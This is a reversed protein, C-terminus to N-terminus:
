PAEPTTFVRNVAAFAADIQATETIADGEIAAAVEALKDFSAQTLSNLGLGLALVRANPFTEFALPANGVQWLKDEGTALAAAYAGSIYAQGKDNTPLAFGDIVIGGQECAWRAAMAYAALDTKTPPGPEPLPSRVVGEVELEEDTWLDLVYALHTTEGDVSLFDGYTMPEGDRTFTYQTM